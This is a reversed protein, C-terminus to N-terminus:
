QAVVHRNTLPKESKLTSSSQLYLQTLELFHVILHKNILCRIKRAFTGFGELRKEETKGEWLVNLLSGYKVSKAFPGRGGNKVAEYVREKGSKRWGADLIVSGM